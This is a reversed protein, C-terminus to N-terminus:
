YFLSTPLLFLYPATIIALLMSVFKKQKDDLESKKFVLHYNGCYILYGCISVVVLVYILALPSTFPNWMIPQLLNDYLFDNFSFQTIFLLLAGVIDALFGLGWVKFISKKYVKGFNNIKLIKLGIILVLSDIIFNSPLVLLIIPPMIFILWIPFIVNYIKKMKFKM